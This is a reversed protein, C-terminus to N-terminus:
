CPRVGGSGTGLTVDVVIVAEGGGVGIAVAAMLGVPVACLGHTATDGIVDRGAEGRRQTRLAVVRGRPSVGSEIM